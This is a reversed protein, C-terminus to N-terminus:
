KHRVDWRRRGATEEPTQLCFNCIVRKQIFCWLSQASLSINLNHQYLVFVSFPLLRKVAQGRKEM